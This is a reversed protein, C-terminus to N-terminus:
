AASSETTQTTARASPPQAMVTSPTSASSILHEWTTLAVQAQRLISGSREAVSDPPADSEQAGADNEQPEASNLRMRKAPPPRM